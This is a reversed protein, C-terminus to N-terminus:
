DDPSLAQLLTSWLPTGLGSCADWGPRAQYVGNIGETVDTWGSKCRESYLLPNLYGVRVGLEKNWMAVLSAWLPAVSSTGGMAIQEDAVRMPYGTGLDAKGAVDPVGRGIKGTKARFAAEPGQWSPLEGFIESVGGAGIGLGLFTYEYWVVENPAESESNLMTGGCSLVHPSSAYYQAAPGKKPRVTAGDGKDGSSFCVTIGKLAADQFVRDMLKTEAIGKESLDEYAGWSATIVSPNHERDTIAATLARYEGEITNRGFYVVIAIGPAFRGVLEVDMTTEITWAIKEVNEPTKWHSKDPPLLDLTETPASLHAASLFAKILAKDAPDNHQGADVVSISAPPTRGHFYVNLDDEHYGGGVTIIGVCAGKGDQGDSVQYMRRVTEPDTPKRRPQEKLPEFFHPKQPHCHDLGLIAEVVPRDSEALARPVQLPGKYSLFRQGGQDLYVVPTVRLVKCFAGHTGKLVVSRRDSSTEVVTLGNTEAFTAVAELDAPNAGFRQEFEGHSLYRRQHPLQTEFEQILDLREKDANANRSRVVVTVEVATDEAPALRSERHEDPHDPASCPLKLYGTSSDM